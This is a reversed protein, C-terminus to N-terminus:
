KNTIIKGDKGRVIHEVRHCSRCLIELNQLDNNKRNRDKHHVNSTGITVKKGCRNCVHPLNKFAIARYRGKYLQRRQCDLCKKQNNGTKIYLEGCIECKLFPKRLYKSDKLVQKCSDCYKVNNARPSFIEGCKKCAKDKPKHPKTRHTKFRNRRLEERCSQCYKASSVKAIFHEGCVACTKDYLKTARIMNINGM